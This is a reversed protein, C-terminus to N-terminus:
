FISLKTLKEKQGKENDLIFLSPKNGAGNLSAAM